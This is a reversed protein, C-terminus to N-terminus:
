HRRCQQHIPNVEQAQAAPAALPLLAILYLRKM